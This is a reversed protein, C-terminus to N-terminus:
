TGNAKRLEASMWPAPDVTQGNRRLEMYLRPAKVDPLVGVPEGALVLDGIHVDIRGLGALTLHYGGVLELILVQGLNQYPGAFVVESDGPAVAQALGSAEFWLGQPGGVGPTRGPGAPDGAVAPGIIPAKLSARQLTATGSNQATVVTIGQNFGGRARLVAIRDILGKLDRTQRAITDTVNHIESLKTEAAVTESNRMQLLQDLEARSVTLAQAEREAEDAKAKLAAQTSALRKLRQDLEAAQAYVPPLMAGLQMTGRAAALSDDPRIAIAPPEDSYLRQLVALLHAVRDRDRALEDLLGKQTEDLRSIEKQTSASAVELEQVKAADAILRQQLTQVEGALRDREARTADESQRNAELDKVARAYREALTGGPASQSASAAYAADDSFLICFVPILILQKM